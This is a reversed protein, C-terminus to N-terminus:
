RKWDWFKQCHLASFLSPLSVYDLSADLKLLKTASLLSACCVHMTKLVVKFELATLFTLNLFLSVPSM